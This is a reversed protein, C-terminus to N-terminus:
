ARSGSPKNDSRADVLIIAPDADMKLERLIKRVKTREAASFFLIVKLAREADSAKKYVDVQNKLNRKLQSNSALKFEVLTKGRSGRSVKFDVPGRGDNAERTVDTDTAFWTLRFLIHVDSERRVPKGDVQFFRHGGKNEIVDKLFLVRRKTEELTNFPTSYFRTDKRLLEALAGVQRVFLLERAHVRQHSVTEAQDGEDEKRRIYYDLIRPFREIAEAVVTDYKERTPDAPLNKLLYSNLEARLQDNPVAHAIDTFDRYLDARNIWVEDSTLINRPTLIVYDDRYIPLEFSRAEWRETVYNFQVKPVNVRRRASRKVYTKAFNQTYSLLHSKILHTTFDSINDRGVGERILTLKELHSSRAITEKGFDSFVTRLNRSLARAFDLGLGHGRNGVRSFGLWTQHVEKFTFWGRLLGEAIAGTLSKDRLFTVYQIIERHLRQYHEEESHFLLFPDIFLPLDNVLSIDFAGHNELDDPDVEFVQSFNIKPRLRLAPRKSGARARAV